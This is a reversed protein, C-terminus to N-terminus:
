NGNYLMSVNCYNFCYMIIFCHALYNIIIVVSFRTCVCVCVCVCMCVGCM